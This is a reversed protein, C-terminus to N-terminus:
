TMRIYCLEGEDVARFLQGTSTWSCAPEGPSPSYIPLKCDGWIQHAISHTVPRATSFFWEPCLPFAYHIHWDTCIFWSRWTIALATAMNQICSERCVILLMSAYWASVWTCKQRKVSIHARDIHGFSAVHIFKHMYFFMCIIFIVLISILNLCPM